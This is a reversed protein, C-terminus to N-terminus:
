CGKVGRKKIGYKLRNTKKKKDIPSYTTTVYVERLNREVKFYQAAKNAKEKSDFLGFVASGSGSMMAGIAGHMVLEERLKGIVPHM